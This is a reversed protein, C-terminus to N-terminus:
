DVGYNYYLSMVIERVVTNLGPCLGGCTVIAARVNNVDFHLEKYPGAKSFKISSALTSMNDYENKQLVFADDAMFASEPFIKM